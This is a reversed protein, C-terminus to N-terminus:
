RRWKLWRDLVKAVYALGLAALGLGVAFFAWLLLAVASEPNVPVDPM